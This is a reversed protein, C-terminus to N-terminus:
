RKMGEPRGRMLLILPLTVACAATFLGFANLYAIMTAQRTIERSVRALGTLSDVNWSGLVEPIQLVKNFPTLVEVLRGYNVRTSRVIEAVCISIFFSSGLNRLLHYIATSEAMDEKSITSFTVTTLPVWILGIALGQLVANATLSLYSVNLDIHMLWLGAVLLMGFGIMMSLRADMRSAFGAFLFGICGGAGRGAIVIGVLSDTYGAPGTLLPPLLVMPTFNLMGYITVLLLGISYNRNRLLRPNLFPRDTTLCHSVFVWFALVAIITEVIIETSQYWDLRQGRALVLQTAGLAISLAFFGLWDLHPKGTVVDPKLFMRLGVVAAIGIPVIAYFAYRWTYLEAMQGGLTPGIVPGIVVGFGYLGMVLGQQERPFSDMLISQALPTSPAGFGGQLIRWLVLGELSEAVGCMFTALTFGAVSWVMTTRTGFRGALWGTMPTVIATALINFTMAWAIEDSTAAFSGQMQPLITSVILLTTSYLTTALVVCVLILVRRATSLEPERAAAESM